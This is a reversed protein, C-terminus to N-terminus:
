TAAVVRMMSSLYRHTAQAQILRVIPWGVRPINGAPRSVVTMEFLVVESCIAIEFLAEGVEPHGVLTGYAFGFREDTEDVYVIRCPAEVCVPGLRLLLLVSTGARIVADQPLISPSAGRQPVWTRLACVARKFTSVGFRLEVVHREVRYGAALSGAELARRTVGVMDYSFPLSEISSVADAIAGDKCGFMRVVM